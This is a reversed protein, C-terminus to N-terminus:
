AVRRGKAPAAAARAENIQRQELVKDTLARKEAFLRKNANELVENERRIIGDTIHLRDAEAERELYGAGLALVMWALETRSRGDVWSQLAGRDGSEILELLTTSNENAAQEAAALTLARNM